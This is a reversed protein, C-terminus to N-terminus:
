FSDSKVLGRRKPSLSPAYENKDQMMIEREQSRAGNNKADVRGRRKVAAAIKIM